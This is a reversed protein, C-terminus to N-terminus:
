AMLVGEKMGLEPSVGSQLFPPGRGPVPGLKQLEDDAVKKLLNVQEKLEGQGTMTLAFSFVSAQLEGMGWGLAEPHSFPEEDCGPGRISDQTLM